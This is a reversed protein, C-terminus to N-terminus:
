TSRKSQLFEKNAIACDIITEITVLMDVDKTNYNRKVTEM